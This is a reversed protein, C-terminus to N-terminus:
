RFLWWFNHLDEKYFKDTKYFMKELDKREPTLM